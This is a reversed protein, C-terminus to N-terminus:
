KKAFEFVPCIGFWRARILFIEHAAINVDQSPHSSDTTCVQMLQQVAHQLWANDKANM